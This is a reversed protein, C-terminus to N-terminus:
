IEERFQMSMRWVNPNTLEISPRGIFKVLKLYNSASTSIVGGSDFSVFMPYSNGYREYVEMLSETEQKTLAFWDVTITQTKELVNSFSQGGESYTVQSRDEIETKFPFQVSGRTPSYHEGLFMSGIEIYGLANQDSISLRWYRYPTTDFETTDIKLIMQDDYTLTTTYAPSTWDNTINGQLRIVAEPSLKISRNRSGCLAFGNPSSPLGLDFTLFEETNIRLFDATYTAAGTLNVDDFGMIAAMETSSAWRLEFHTAGGSLDSTIVFKLESNQTVTYNALGAAEFAADVASMFASTSTYEGVAVLATKDSGGSADRFVIDNEGSVIKYYGASRWVKARRVRATVNTAPFNAQESSEYLNAYVETDLYNDSFLKVCGM